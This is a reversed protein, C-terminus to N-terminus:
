PRTLTFSDIMVNDPSSFMKYNLTNGSIGVRCYGLTNKGVVFYQDKRSPEYTRAGGTGITLHQIGNVAERVYCHNHGGFVIPVNYKECLPQIRQQVDVNNEHYGDSWGPNHLLIFKWPKGSTRLDNELWLLQTDTIRPAHEADAYQDVVAFHAPGYDFSWYRDAVYPYPWYKTYYTGTREHNGICGQIPLNAQMAINSTYTRDFFQSTWLDNENDSVWDGVHLIFTQCAPEATYTSIINRCVQNQSDPNTRTDGYALFEVATADAAPAATFSGQYTNQGATVCYHYKKGPTLNSITYRHQHDAGYESTTVTNDKPSSDLGWSLRCDITNDLQWLVMMETNRGPYILYPGKLMAAAATQKDQAQAKPIEAKGQAAPKTVTKEAAQCGGAALVGATIITMVVSFVSNRFPNFM